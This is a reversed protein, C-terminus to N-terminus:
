LKAAKASEMKGPSTLLLMLLTILANYIILDLGIVYPTYVSIVYSNLLYLIVPSLVSIYPVLKDNAASYLTLPLAAFEVPQKGTYAIHPAFCGTQVDAM